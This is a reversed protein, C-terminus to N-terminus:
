ESVSVSALAAILIRRVVQSIPRDERAAIAKLHAATTTDTRFSFIETEAM